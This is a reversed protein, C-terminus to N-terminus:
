YNQFIGIHKLGDVPFEGTGFGRGFVDSGRLTAGDGPRSGGLPAHALVVGDGKIRGKLAPGNWLGLMSISRIKASPVNGAVSGATGKIAAMLVSSSFHESGPLVVLRASLHVM